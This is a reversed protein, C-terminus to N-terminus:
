FKLNVKMKVLERERYLFYVPRPAPKEPEDYEQKDYQRQEQDEDKYQKKTPPKYRAEGTGLFMEIVPVLFGLLM